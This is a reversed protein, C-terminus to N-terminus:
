PGRRPRLQAARLARLARLSGALAAALALVAALRLGVAPQGFTFWFLVLVAFVATALPPWWRQLGRRLFLIGAAAGLALAALWVAIEVGQVWAPERGGEARLRLGSMMRRAMVFGGADVATLAARVLIPPLSALAEAPPQVRLRVHLRTGGGQVPELNWIWTWFPEPTSAVLLYRGAAAERVRLFDATMREGPQPDQLEPVIREANRYPRAPDFLNEIFTYTYFGGRRDGMQAIWPWVAEPPAQITLAHDWKLLPARQLEDGPLSRSREEPTSGWRQMWPLLLAFGGFLLGALLLVGLLLRLRRPPASRPNTM